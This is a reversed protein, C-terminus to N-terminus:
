WPDEERHRELRYGKTRNHKDGVTEVIRYDLFYRGAQQSLAKGLRIKQSRENGDGLVPALLDKELAMVYLDGSTKANEGFRQWWERVFDRWMSTEEDMEKYIDQLNTLFGRVGAVDLIGGLTHAWQEFMGLTQAGMPRGEAVWAQVLTLVTHVLRGRNKLVWARLEPHRFGERLWPQEMRADLKIKITRRAIESSSRVANGTALWMCEVPLDIMESKGLIRDRWVRATIAASLASSYLKRQVNDILVVPAADILISTIRKRWEDEDRGEAITQAPSGTAILATCDALLTKGTGPGSVADIVHLPTPGPIMHRVFPLILAAIAYARDSDTVFPFEGLLDEAIVRYAAEREFVSVEESVPPVECTPEYYLEASEHYGPETILNGDRDFTPSLAIRQIRPVPPRVYAMMGQVVDRPPYAPVEFEAGDKTRIAYWEADWELENRFADQTMAALRPGYDGEEIHTLIGSRKFIRPTDANRATLADWGADMQYTLSKRSAEIRPKGEKDEAADKEEEKPEELDVEVPEAGALAEEFVAKFEDPKDLYALHLENPDKYGDLSFERIEGTFGGQRLRQSTHTVFTDGSLGPERFLVVKLFGDLKKTWEKKFSTAGPVGLSPIGHRWLTQTDSEGEVLVLSDGKEKMVSLKWLGYLATIGKGAKTWVPRRDMSWRCRNRLLNGDEDRYPMLLGGNSMEQIGFVKELVEPTFGKAQCYKELTLNGGYENDDSGDMGVMEALKELARRYEWGEIRELFGFGDGQGCGAHCTWAGTRENYSFSPTTDDHFPCHTSFWGDEGAPKGAKIHRRFIEGWRGEMKQKVAEADIM